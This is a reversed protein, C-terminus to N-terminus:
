LNFRVASPSVLLPPFSLWLSGAKHLFPRRANVQTGHKHVRNVSGAAGSNSVDV